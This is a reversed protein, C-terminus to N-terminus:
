QNTASSAIVAVAAGAATADPPPGGEGVTRVIEVGNQEFVVAPEGGRNMDIRRVIVQGNALSQGVRVYRSSAENPASVIAYPINGIQVVGTVLVARAADTPPPLPVAPLRPGGSPVLQPIPALAGPTTPAAAPQANEPPQVNPQVSVTAFPDPRNRRIEQVRDGANTSAILDPPLTGVPQNAVPVTGFPQASAGPSPSAAADPAPSVPVASPSGLAEPSTGVTTDGGACGGATLALTGLVAILLNRRM